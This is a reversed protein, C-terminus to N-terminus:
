SGSSVDGTAPEGADRALRPQLLQGFLLAAVALCWVIVAGAPLDWRSSLFLGAASGIIGVAYGCSLRTFRARIGRTALAPIILSAFVLYVGVLQVSATVAFAFLAYFAFGHMRDRITYWTVLIIASVVAVLPLEGYTVWLIQGVLLEKLHEGGHPNGALLLIGATAALIFCVGILAEQVQPWRRDTWHLVFAALLAASIAAVQVMWGRPEWGMADAAIVGLGAVQAVALDIFIIGRRLVEAGLPVHTSLVLLSAVFAPLLISLEFANM